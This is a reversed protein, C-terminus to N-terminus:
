IEYGFRNKYSYSITFCVTVAIKQLIVYVGMNLMSWLSRMNGLNGM